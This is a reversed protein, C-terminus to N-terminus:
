GVYSRAHGYTSARSPTVCASRDRSYESRSGCYWQNRCAMRFARRSDQLHGLPHQREEVPLKGHLLTIDVCRVTVAQCRLMHHLPTQRDSTSSAGNELRTNPGLQRMDRSKSLHFRLQWM